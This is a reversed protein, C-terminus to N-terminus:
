QLDVPDIRIRVSGPERRASRVGSAARLARSLALGGPLRCRVLARVAADQSADPLSSSAPQAGVPMPGLVESGDPLESRGLLDSVAAAPGTLEALRWAPPLRADTREDLERDAFGSPDWRLLAQVARHGPDAVVIACGGNDSPRVTAVANLWRRMAEEGARLDARAIMADGDLLVAAAYGDAAVPEAGPTAVVLAPESPVDTLVHGLGSRRVPTGPFARGLELATRGEGVTVARWQRRGCAPCRWQEESRGCRQCQLPASESTQALPGGCAACRALERCGQCAVVPRYGHRPVQVLVPGHVLARRVVSFVEEPLRRGPLGARQDTAVALAPARRRVHERDARIQGAWGTRVLRQVEATRAFGAVLLGCGQQHARMLSVDRAHPYPARAEAHLDDGDDWVVVLGLRDVPAYAASRTGLVVRVQGRRVALFRRYRASPGQEAHLLVHRHPGLRATLAADVRAVDKTDPVLLLAGRGSSAVATAAVALLDPWDEGPSMTAAARPTGGDALAAVFAAGARYHAWGGPQPVCVDGDLRPRATAAETRAHRPPIALRLVDARTGAYHDAVRRTLEAIEPALVPEDSVVREIPTLDARAASPEVRELVYGSRRRGAFRVRVRVGPRAADDWEPPVAYDFPRDLHALGVDVLVRAPDTASPPV